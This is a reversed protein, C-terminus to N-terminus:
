KTARQHPIRTSRKEIPKPGASNLHVDLPPVTNWTAAIGNPPNTSILPMFM